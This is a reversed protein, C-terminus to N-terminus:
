WLGNFAPTMCSVESMGKMNGSAHEVYLM